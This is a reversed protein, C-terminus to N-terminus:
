PFREPWLLSLSRMPFFRWPFLPMCTTTMLSRRPYPCRWPAWGGEMHAGARDIGGTPLTPQLWTVWRLPRTCWNNNNYKYVSVCLPFTLFSLGCFFTELAVHPNPVTCPTDMFGFLGSFPGKYPGNVKAKDVAAMHGCPGHSMDQGTIPGVPMFVNAQGNIMITGQYHQGNTSGVVVM